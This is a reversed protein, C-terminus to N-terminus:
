GPSLTSLAAAPLAADITYISAVVAARRLEAQAAGALGGRRPAKRAVRRLHQGQSEMLQM